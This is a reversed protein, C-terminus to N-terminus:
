LRDLTENRGLDARRVVTTWELNPLPFAPRPATPRDHPQDERRHAPRANPIILEHPGECSVARRALLPPVVAQPELHEEDRSKADASAEQDTHPQDPGEDQRRYEDWDNVEEGPEHDAAFRLEYLWSTEQTPANRYGNPLPVLRRRGDAATRREEAPHGPPPAFRPGRGRQPVPQQVGSSHASRTPKWASRLGGRPTQRRATARM